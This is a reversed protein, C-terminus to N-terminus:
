PVAAEIDLLPQMLQEKGLADRVVSISEISGGFGCRKEPVQAQHLRQPFNPSGPHIRVM